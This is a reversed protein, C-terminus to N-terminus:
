GATSPPSCSSDPCVCYLSTFDHPATIVSCGSPCSAATSPGSNGNGIIVDGACTGGPCSANEGCSSGGGVTLIWCMQGPPCDDNSSCDCTESTCLPLCSGGTTYVSSDLLCQTATWNCYEDVRCGSDATCQASCAASGALWSLLGLPLLTKPM